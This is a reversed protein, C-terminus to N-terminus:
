AKVGLKEGCLHLSASFIRQRVNGHCSGDICIDVNKMQIKGQHDKMEAGRRRQPSIVKGAEHIRLIM